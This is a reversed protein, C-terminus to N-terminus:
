SLEVSRRKRQKLKSIQEAMVPGSEKALWGWLLYFFPGISYLRPEGVVALWIALVAPALYTNSDKKILAVSVKILWYIVILYLILGPIGCAGVVSLQWIEGGGVRQGGFKTSGETIVGTGRGFPTSGMEEITWKAAQVRNWLTSEKALPNKVGVALHRLNAEKASSVSGTQLNIKPLAVVIAIFFLINVILAKKWNKLKLAFFVGILFLFFFIASRTSTMFVGYMLVIFGIIWLPYMFLKKFLYMFSIACAILLYWAFEQPSMFTSFAKLFGGIKCATFGGYKVWYEEFPFLGYYIQHLGYISTIIGIVIIMYLLSEMRKTPLFFGFYFWLMPTVIYMIGSFGMALGGQFPNLCELAFLAVFYTFYKLLGNDKTKKMIEENYFIFIYSFMFLTLVTSIILIPDFNVYSNFSYIYRRIVGMFPLYILLAAVGVEIKLCSVGLILFLSVFIIMRMNGKVIGDSIFYSSALIIIFFGWQQLFEKPISILDYFPGKRRYAFPTNDAFLNSLKKM